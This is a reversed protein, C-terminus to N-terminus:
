MAPRRSSRRPLCAPCRTRSRWSGALLFRCTLLATRWDRLIWPFLMAAVSVQWSLSWTWGRPAGRHRHIGAGGAAGKGRGLGIRRTPGAALCGASCDAITAATARLTPKPPGKERLEDDTAAASSAPLGPSTSAAESGDPPLAISPRLPVPRAHNRGHRATLGKAKATKSLSMPHGSAEAGVTESPDPYTIRTSASTSGRSARTSGDTSPWCAGCTNCRAIRRSKSSPTPARGWPRGWGSDGYQLPTVLVVQAEKADLRGGFNALNVKVVEQAFSQGNCPAGVM